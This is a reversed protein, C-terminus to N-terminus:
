QELYAIIDRNLDPAIYGLSAYYQVLEAITFLAHLRYGADTLQQAGGQQRDVIVLVDRVILGAEELLRIGELKTDAQTILDDIILVRGGAHYYGSVPGALRRTGDPLEEKRMHLLTVESCLPNRTRPFHQAFPEGAQPLGIIYQYDLGTVQSKWHLARGACEVTSQSLRGAPPVRLDLYFPSLPADPQRDHLKLKFGRESGRNIAKASTRDLFARDYYFVKALKTLRYNM